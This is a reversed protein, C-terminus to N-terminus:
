HDVPGQVLKCAEQPPLSTAAAAGRMGRDCGGSASLTGRKVGPAQHGLPDPPQLAHPPSAPSGSSSPPHPGAFCGHPLPWDGAPLRCAGPSCVRSAKQPSHYPSAEWSPGEKLTPWAAGRVSERPFKHGEMHERYPGAAPDGLGAQLGTLMIVRGWGQSEAGRRVVRGHSGLVRPTLSVETTVWGREAVGQAWVERDPTGSAVKFLHPPPLALSSGHRPGLPRASTPSGHTGLSTSSHTFM